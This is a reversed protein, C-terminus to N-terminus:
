IPSSGLGGSRGPALQGQRRCRLRAHRHTDIVVRILTQAGLEAASFREAAWALFAVAARHPIAVGKPRGTSGSTYIVYALHEGTVASDPATTPYGALREGEAELRV